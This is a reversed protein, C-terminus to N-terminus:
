DSSLKLSELLSFVFRQSVRHHHTQLLASQHVVHTEFNRLGCIKRRVRIRQYQSIPANTKLSRQQFALDNGRLNLLGKLM